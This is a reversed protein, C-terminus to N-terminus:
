ALHQLLQRRMHDVPIILLLAYQARKERYFHKLVELSIVTM